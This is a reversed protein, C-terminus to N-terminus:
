PIKHIKLSNANEQGHGTGPEPLMQCRRLGTIPMRRMKRRRLSCLFTTGGGPGSGSCFSLDFSVLAIQIPTEVHKLVTPEDHDTLRPLSAGAKVDFCSRYSACEGYDQLKWGGLEEFAALTRCSCFCCPVVHFLM